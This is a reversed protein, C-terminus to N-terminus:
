AISYFETKKLRWCGGERFVLYQHTIVFNVGDFTLKWKWQISIVIMQNDFNMGGIKLTNFSANKHNYLQKAGMDGKVQFWKWKKLM